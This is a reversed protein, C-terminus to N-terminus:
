WRAKLKAILEDPHIPKPFLEFDHGDAHAKRMLEITAAQGSFLLIRAQPFESRLRIGLEIGSMKPMLVDSLVIDPQLDRAAVIAEEGNYAASASFGNHNLITALTDAILREDDVVLIRPVAPSTEPGLNTSPEPPPPQPTESQLWATPERM